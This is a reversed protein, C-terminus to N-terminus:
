GHPLAEPQVRAAVPNRLYVCIITCKWTPPSQVPPMSVLMNVAYEKLIPFWQSQSEDSCLPPYSSSSDDGSSARDKFGQSGDKGREQEQLQLQEKGEKSNLVISMFRSILYIEYENQVVRM